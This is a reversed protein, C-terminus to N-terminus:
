FSGNTGGVDGGGGDFVWLLQAPLAELDGAVM